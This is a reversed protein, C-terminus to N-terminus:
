KEIPFTYIQGFLVFSTGCLCYRSISQMLDSFIMNDVFISHNNTKLILSEITRVSIM